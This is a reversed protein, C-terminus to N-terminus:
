LPVSQFTATELLCGITIEVVSWKVTAKKNVKKQWSDLQWIDLHVLSQYGQKAVNKEM